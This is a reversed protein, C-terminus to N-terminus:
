SKHNPATCPGFAFLASHKDDKARTSGGVMFFIFNLAFHAEDM